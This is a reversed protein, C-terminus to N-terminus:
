EMEPNWERALRKARSIEEVSMFEATVDRLRVAEENGKDAALISWMHAHINDQPAGKGMSYMYGLNYQADPVGQNAARLYWKVAEAHNQSVGDGSSYMLGLLTQAVPNGKEALPKWERLATDFDGQTFAKYGARVRAKDAAEDTQTAVQSTADVSAPIGGM